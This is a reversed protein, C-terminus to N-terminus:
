RPHKPCGKGWLTPAQRRPLQKRRGSNWRRSLKRLLWPPDAHPSDDRGWGVGLLFLGWVEWQGHPSAAIGRMPGLRGMLCVYRIPKSSAVLSPSSCPPPHPRPTRESTSWWLSTPKRRACATLRVLGSGEPGSWQERGALVNAVEDRRRWAPPQWRRHWGRLHEQRTM